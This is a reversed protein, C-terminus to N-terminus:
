LARWESYLDNLLSVSIQEVAFKFQPNQAYETTAKAKVEDRTIESHCEHMHLTFWLNHQVSAQIKDLLIKLRDQNM